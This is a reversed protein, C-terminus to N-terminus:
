NTAQLGEIYEQLSQATGIYDGYGNQNDESAYDNAISQYEQLKEELEEIQEELERKQIRVASVIGNFTEAESEKEEKLEECKEFFVEKLRNAEEWSQKEEEYKKKYFEARHFQAIIGGQADHSQLYEKLETEIDTILEM